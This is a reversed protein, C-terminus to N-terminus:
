ARHKTILQSLKQKMKKNRKGVEMVMAVEVVVMPGLDCSTNLLCRSFSIFHRHSPVSLYLDLFKRM